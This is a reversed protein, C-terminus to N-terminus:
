AAAASLDPRPPRRPGRDLRCVPSLRAASVVDGERRELTCGGEGHIRAQARQSQLPGALDGQLLPARVFADRDQALRQLQPEGICSATRVENWRSVIILAQDPAEAMGRKASIASLCRRWHHHGSPAPGSEHQDPHTGM